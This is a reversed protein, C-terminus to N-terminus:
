PGGPADIDMGIDLAPASHTLAGIAIRDVGTQAIARVTELTVGGSAELLVAGQRGATRRMEVARAMSPCDMNDLLIVEIGEVTLVQRLQDLNDVEVELPVGPAEARARAVLERLRGAWAGPPAGALHNDKLLIGDALGLRHNKGGGTRVAYKDLLRFGPLTKRTDVIAAGTGAVRRVFRATLTAVGSLRQLFNLIVREAALLSRLPGRLRLLPTSRTEALRGELVEPHFGPIQEVALREDYVRCIMPVIGLGCTVGPEKQMLTAAATAEAPVFLNSTLDGGGFDEERALLILPRLQEFAPFGPPTWM